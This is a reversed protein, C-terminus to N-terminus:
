ETLGSLGNSASFGKAAGPDVVWYQTYIEFGAPVGAPFISALSLDGEADVPLGAVVFEPFPILTGGKFPASLETLSFVMAASSGPLAKGLDLRVVQGDALTGTATHCPMVGGTGALGHGLNKWPGGGLLFIGDNGDALKAEFIVWEGFPSLSWEYSLGLGIVTQGGIQTVGKQVIMTKDLFLAENTLTSGGDWVGHWLVVGNDGIFVPKSTLNNTLHHPAIAAFSDGEQIFLEGNKVLVTDSDNDGDIHGALVWQGCANLDVQSGGALNWLRGPVPSSAGTQALVSDDLSIAGGLGGDPVLSAYVMLQGADNFTARQVTVVDQTTGPLLDGERLLLDESLVEGSSSFDLRVLTSQSSGPVGLDDFVGKVIMQNSNNVEFAELTRWFSGPAFQPATSEGSRQVMLEGGVYIGEDDFLGCCGSTGDLVVKMSDLGRNDLIVPRFAEITAGVPDPVPDGEQRFVGQSTLLVGDMGPIADTDASIIWEGDDNVSVGVFSTIDGVGPVSQGERALTSIQASAPTALGLMALFTVCLTRHINPM